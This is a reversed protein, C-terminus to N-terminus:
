RSIFTIYRRRVAKQSVYTYLPNQYRNLPGAYHTADTPTEHLLISSWTSVNVPFPGAPNPSTAMNQSALSVPVVPSIHAITKNTTFYSLHIAKSCYSVM